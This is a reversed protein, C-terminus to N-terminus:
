DATAVSEARGVDALSDPAYSGNQTGDAGNPTGWQLSVTSNCPPHVPSSEPWCDPHSASMSLWQPATASTM